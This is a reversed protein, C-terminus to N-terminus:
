LVGKLAKAFKSPLRIVITQARVFSFLLDIHALFVTLTKMNHSHRMIAFDAPDQSRFVDMSYKTMGM